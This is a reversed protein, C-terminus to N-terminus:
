KKDPNFLDMFRDYLNNMWNGADFNKRLIVIFFYGSLGGFFRAIHLAPQNIPLTAIDVAMYIVGVIWLSIGGGLMPFLKGNPNFTIAAICIAWIGPSCGLIYDAPPQLHFFPFIFTTFLFTIGGDITGYLFVPILRRKGALEIFIYGFFGLWLMNSFLAWFDLHVFSYTIITWCKLIATKIAPALAFWSLINKDFILDIDTGEPYRVFLVAKLFALIVFFITNIAILFVLPKMKTGLSIENNNKGFSFM